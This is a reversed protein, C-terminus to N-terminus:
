RLRTAMFVGLFILVFGALHAFTIPQGLIFYAAVGSFVPMFYQFLSATGPGIIRVANNWLFFAALSAGLGLYLVAGAIPWSMSWAAATQQEIFAAPILPIAGIFFTTGLYSLPDIDSPMKKVLISYVAWLLGALLMWIDGVRFTMALLIELDGRTAITLMGCIAILLGAARARSIGEGLFIRSLIVVFVPTSSAFLAMNTTDTTRASVYVLTNFLTVGTISAVLIQWRHAMIAPLDRHIRKWCFPLFIIAATVWRLAALTIPPLSHVFGSAIVFNGSWISVAILAFLLGLSRPQQM